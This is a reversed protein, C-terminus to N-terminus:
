STCSVDLLEQVLLNQRLAVWTQVFAGASSAGELCVGEAVVVLLSHCCLQPMYSSLHLHSCPQYYFIGDLVQERLFM